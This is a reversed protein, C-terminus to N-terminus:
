TVRKLGWSKFRDIDSVLNRIHRHEQVFIHSGHEFRFNYHNIGIELREPEGFECFGAKARECNKKFTPIQQIWDYLVIEADESTVDYMDVGLKFMILNEYTKKNHVTVFEIEPIHKCLNQLKIASEVKSVVQPLLFGVGADMVISEVKLNQWYIAYVIDNEKKISTDPIDKLHQSIESMTKEFKDKNVTIPTEEDIAKKILDQLEQAQNEPAIVSTTFTIFFRDWSHPTDELSYPLKTIYTGKIDADRFVSCESLFNLLSFDEQLHELTIREKDM